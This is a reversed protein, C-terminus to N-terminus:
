NDGSAIHIKGSCQPYSHLKKPINLRLLGAELKAILKETDVEVPFNLERRFTGIRREGLILWPPRDEIVQPEDKFYDLNKKSDKHLAAAGKSIGGNGNSESSPAQEDPKVWPRTINGSIVLTRWSIWNLSISNPDKVGPLELDVLYHSLNDSVDCDPHNPYVRQDPKRHALSGLFSNHQHLREHPHDALEPITEYYYLPAGSMYTPQLAPAPINSARIIPISM